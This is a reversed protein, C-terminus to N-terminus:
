EAPFPPPQGGLEALANCAARQEADKKNKGWAPQFRKTAVQAAIKFCKSHDPGQEEILEYTPTTGNQRQVIQQLQSKYNGGTEGGVALIIEPAMYRLIFTRAAESGGDLYIAAILSEFADALLSPPISPHTLIGKGLILLDQIGLLRGIKACTHRSVVVSKIKTLDGELYEPYERFLWECVVEGLIADGLFELRENSALRHGAGSAHTLAERLINKNVFTYDIRRQCEAIQLDIPSLSEPTPELSM